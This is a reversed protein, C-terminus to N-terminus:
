SLQVKFSMMAKKTLWTTPVSFFACAWAGASFRLGNRIVHYALRFNGALASFIFLRVSQDVYWGKFLAKQEDTLTYREFYNIVLEMHEQLIKNQNKRNKGFTASEQHALYTHGLHPVFINKCGLVTARILLERDTSFNHRGQSDFPELLGIKNLYTKSVFRADLAPIGYLMNHLTMDLEAATAYSVVTKLRQEKTDFRVIRGAFSIIDVGPNDRYAKAALAFTGPEYWDDAMLQGTIEGTAKTLGVNIALGPSGDPKSHWYAIQSEYRKIVDVTGDTSGADLVILEINAYDQNLVSAIAKEITGVNNLVPIVISIRPNAIM